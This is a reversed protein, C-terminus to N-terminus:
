LKKEITTRIDGVKEITVIEDVEFMIDFEREIMSLLNIHQMSDWDPIDAATTEDTVSLSEDNFITRFVQNIREMIEQKEM